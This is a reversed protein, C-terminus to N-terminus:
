RTPAIALQGTNFMHIGAAVLVIGLIVVAIRTFADQMWGTGSSAGGFLSTLSPAASSASGGAAGAGSGSAAGALTADLQSGGAASSGALYSLNLNSLGNDYFYPSTVGTPAFTGGGIVNQGQQPMPSGLPWDEIEYGTANDFVNSV